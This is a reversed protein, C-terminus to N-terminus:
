DCIALATGPTMSIDGPFSAMFTLRDVLGESTLWFSETQVLVQVNIGVGIPKHDHVGSRVFLM